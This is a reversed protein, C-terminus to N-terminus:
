RALWKRHWIFSSFYIDKFGIFSKYNILFIFVYIGLLILHNRKLAGNYFCGAIPTFVSRPRMLWTGRNIRIPCNNQVKYLLRQTIVATSNVAHSPWGSAEELGKEVGTFYPGGQIVTSNSLDILLRTYIQKNIGTDSPFYTSLWHWKVEGRRSEMRDKFCHKGYTKRWYVITTKLKIFNVFLFLKPLIYVTM